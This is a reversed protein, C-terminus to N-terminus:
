GEKVFWHWWRRSTGYRPPISEAHATPAAQEESRDEPEDQPLEPYLQTYTAIPIEPQKAQAELQDIIKKLLLTLSQMANELGNVKQLLLTFAIGEAGGPERPTEAM